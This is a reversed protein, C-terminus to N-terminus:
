FGFIAVDGVKLGLSSRMGLGPRSLCPPNLCLLMMWRSGFGLASSRAKEFRCEWLM